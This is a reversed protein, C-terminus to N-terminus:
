SQETPRGDHYYIKKSFYGEQNFLTAVGKGKIVKSVSAKEGTRFYEGKILKDNDYEEVLMLSGNQYWATLLGNKKNGSMERQSELVGNEYWTKVPGQLVGEHWTLLLKPQASGPLYDIEEGQKEGNKVSYSRILNLKEDFVKVEGEQVGNKFSHLEHLQDKGFVARNGKGQSIEAVKMGKLDYYQADLLLGNEYNERFALDGSPWYRLSVGEKKGDRYETTQFLTGDKLYIEQTGNLAGKDYYSMKWLNGDPHYYLSNGQLEGKQYRIEALLRGDDDWAKNLGDFLWSQEAQTNLDAIGGIVFADVKCTGNPHWERYIGNARNNLAELYQKIEGNPHYSTICSPIDGNKQRGFVRLVKQYPQPSLFNTQEFANLREKASITESMGNRDIINISTIKGPDIDSTLKCGTVLFILSVIPPIVLYSLIKKM